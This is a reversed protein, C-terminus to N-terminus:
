QKQYSFLLSTSTPDQLFAKNIKITSQIQFKFSVAEQTKRIMGYVIKQLDDNSLATPTKKLDFKLTAPLATSSNAEVQIYQSNKANAIPLSDAYLRYNYEVLSASVKNPNAMTMNVTMEVPFTTDSFAAEIREMQASDLNVHDFLQIDGLLKINNVSVYDFIFSKYAYPDPEDSGPDCAAFFLFGFIVVLLKKM